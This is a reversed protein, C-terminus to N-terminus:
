RTRARTRVTFSILDGGTKSDRAELFATGPLIAALGPIRTTLLRPMAAYAYKTERGSTWSTVRITPDTAAPWMDLTAGDDAVLLVPPSGLTWNAPLELRVSLEPFRAAMDAKLWDKILRAVDVPERVAPQTM